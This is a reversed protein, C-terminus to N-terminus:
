LDLTYYKAQKMIKMKELAQYVTWQKTLVVIYDCCMTLLKTKGGM